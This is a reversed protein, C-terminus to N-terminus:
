AAEARAVPLLVTSSAHEQISLGCASAPEAGRLETARRACTSAHM